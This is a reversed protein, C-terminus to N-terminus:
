IILTYRRIPEMGRFAMVRTKEINIDMSIESAM